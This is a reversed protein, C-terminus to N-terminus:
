EYRLAAMPDLRMARRAPVYCAWLAIAALLLTVSAYTLPDTASVGVFLRTTTRTLAWSAVLGCLVGVMVLVMGQRLVLRLIDHPEAGLAMRIGMEHTRQEASFSVVAYVGVVALTLGILGMVAALTAGMRFVFFGNTGGLSQKMTRVDLIPLDPALGRIVQQVLAILSEPTVASRIQLTMRSSYDQDYPLYFFPIPEVLALVSYKGDQAVGVVETFPGSPGLISFRKGIPDENPWFQKAMKQNIIAVRPVTANDTEAFGRGRELPVRMMEFYPPNVRNMLVTPPQQGVALPHGEIYVTRGDQWNGMPVSYALAVSKVGPLARVRAELERYFGRTRPEDYGIGHPDVTVNLVHDPDFGLYMQQVRWLSRVFLGAAVLLVLSGALQAVVLVSRLRPRGAHASDSRGSERLMVNVNTRSARLAPSVGVIMGTLVAIGLAYFFVRWDLGWYLRLPVSSVVQEFTSGLLNNAWQGLIVGAAGGMLALLISETLVQAILRGRGAGLAARIGMERQRVTARVLLINAVNMCALLLVLTALALFSGAVLPIINAVEPEPRAQKEPIVRVTIGKDADPYQEALRAAAVDFSSQAQALSVGSNLRGLASLIRVRRYYGYGDAGQGFGPARNLSLYGDMELVSHVGGFGKPGVGVITVPKGDVLIQRGIVGPDGGFRKQWYSYGLVIMAAEGPKEGEGPLFLRGLTPQLGLASFYNGTVCSAVIEEARGDASLGVLDIRYAFLDSFTSVQKRYDVLDLYSMAYAQLTAGKEEPALVMIQEPARVPLPRLLMGNVVGFIATNVGIGLALTIVVIATLGPSKALARFGFRLDRASNELFRGLRIARVEEKVQEVGGLEILAQRRAEPHSLGQKMKEETLLEVSSQLEDDLAQEV